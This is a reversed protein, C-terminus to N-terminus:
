KKPMAHIHKLYSMVNNAEEVHYRYHMANAVKNALQDFLETMLFLAKWTNEISSDPYTAVIQNYLQPSLFHEINKGSKGFSITFYTLVGIYWEIIKLFMARVPGELMEKTYVIERRWLGKAVYTSVWWFENCCDLFEKEKPPKIFYSLESASFPIPFCNDKDMLVKVLSEEKHLYALKNLPYLTLDIRNGDTFLMLYHYAYRDKGGIEMEDPLQMIIREGFVDIWSHDHIFTELQTVIYIIDFDQLKDKRANLNARSGTLLVARTNENAEAVQLVLALIEEESRM